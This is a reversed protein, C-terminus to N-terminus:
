KTLYKMLDARGIDLFLIGYFAKWIRENFDLFCDRDRM